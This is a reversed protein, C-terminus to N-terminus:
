WDNMELILDDDTGHDKDGILRYLKDDMGALRIQMTKLRLEIESVGWVVCGIAVCILTETRTFEYFWPIALSVPIIAGTMFRRWSRMRRYKKLAGKLEFEMEGRRQEAYRRYRGPGLQKELVEERDDAAHVHNNKVVAFLYAEGDRKYGKKMENLTLDGNGYYACRVALDSATPSGHVIIRDNKFGKGYMAAILCRFEDRLSLETSYGEILEGKDTRDKLAAWRSLVHDIGDTTPMRQHGLSDLLGYLNRLWFNNVPAIALLKFISRLIGSHGMDPMDDTDERTTLRKNDQSMLVLLEWCDDGIKSFPEKREYLAELFEEDVTPNCILAKAAGYGESPNRDKASGAGAVVRATEEPGILGNPFKFLFHVEKISQNSLCAIQLGKRYRAELLNDTTTVARHYLEAVVKANAGYNALGLDILPEGRKLLIEELEDDSALYPKSKIQEGYVKLERFVEEPNSALLRAEQTLAEQDKGRKM